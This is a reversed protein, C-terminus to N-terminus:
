FYIAGGFGSLQNLHLTSPNLELVMQYRDFIYIVHIFDQASTKASIDYATNMFIPFVPKLPIHPSVSEFYLININFIQPELTHTNDQSVAFTSRRGPLKQVFIEIM